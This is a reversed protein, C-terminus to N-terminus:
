FSLNVKNLAAETLYIINKLNLRSALEPLVGGFLSHDLQTSVVNALINYSTDVIAVGTDDCSSEFALIANM